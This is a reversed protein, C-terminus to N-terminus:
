RRIRSANKTRLKRVPDVHQRWLPAELHKPRAQLPTWELALKGRRRAGMRRLMAGLETRLWFAMSALLLYQLQVLNFFRPATSLFVMFPFLHTWIWGQSEEEIIEERSRVIVVQTINKGNEKYFRTYSDPQRYFFYRISMPMLVHGVNQQGTLMTAPLVQDQLKTPWSKYHHLWFGTGVVESHKSAWFAITCILFALGAPQTFWQLMQELHATVPELHAIVGPDVVIQTTTDVAPDDAVPVVATQAATDVVATDATGPNAVKNGQSVLRGLEDAAPTGKRLSLLAFATYAVHLCTPIALNALNAKWSEDKKQLIQLQQEAVLKSPILGQQNANGWTRHIQDIRALRKSRSSARQWDLFLRLIHPSIAVVGLALAYPLHNSHLTEILSPRVPSPHFNRSLVPKWGTQTRLCGTSLAPHRFM